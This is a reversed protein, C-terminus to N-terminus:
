WLSLLKLQPLAEMLDLELAYEWNTILHPFAMRPHHWRQAPLKPKILSCVSWALPLFGTLLMGGYGRCWSRSGSRSSNWDQCGKTILLLTSLTLQIFRKMRFKSRPWSTQAPISVRVLVPDMIRQLIISCDWIIHLRLSHKIKCFNLMSPDVM